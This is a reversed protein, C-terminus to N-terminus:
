GIDHYDTDLPTILALTFHNIDQRFVKIDHGPVLSARIGPV